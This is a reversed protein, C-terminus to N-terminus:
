ENNIMKKIYQLGAICTKSYKFDDKHQNMFNDYFIKMDEKSGNLIFWPVRDYKGTAVMEAFKFTLNDNKYKKTNLDGNVPNLYYELETTENIESPKIKAQKSDFLSHDETVEIRMDGDLVEYIDKDTKHRYIYEPEVWGSRCLVYFPKKSYDYERGLEDVKITLKNILEEIPKIDLIGSDKYKIFLPTDPTFSDGVIPKYGLNTFHSIM